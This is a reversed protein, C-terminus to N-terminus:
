FREMTKLYLRDVLRRAIKEIAVKENYRNTLPDSTVEYRAQEEMGNEKWITRGTDKEFLRADLIIRLRRSNTVAYYTDEGRVNNQTIDYTPSETRIDRIKGELILAADDRPVLPINSHSIFEDRIIKTFDSEFGLSSSTSEMLPIALSPIDGGMPEGDARFHYGCGSFNLALSFIITLKITITIYHM